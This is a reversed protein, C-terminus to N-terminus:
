FTVTDSTDGASVREIIKDAEDAIRKELEDAEVGDKVSIEALRAIEQEEGDDM